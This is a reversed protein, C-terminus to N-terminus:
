KNFVPALTAKPAAVAVEDEGSRWLLLAPLLLFDLVLAFVIALSTLLGMDANVKFDSFMLVAFGVALIVTNTVIATGVSKFAYRISDEASLKRESRARVYKSLFHVTDDVVIGLSISAVTAVSFGVEGVLIAWAGFTAMIPLGNPVLSLLGLSVSRLAFALIVSIALVAAITGGVMNIVNREAIYTFMVGASTPRAHMYAPANDALWAQADSLFQKTEISDADTLTATVRTASKDVNIRDNLDLGYPLSIEYLLLYQASLDRNDPIRYYGQDDDHLNKSLRKMIDSFAYVHTVQPQDRLWSAFQDLKELYLPESVGGPGNAGVSFEIPYMGFYAMASDTDNRFEIDTSFYEVWEDNLQLTPIFAVLSLAIVSVVVLLRKRRAIVFDAFREMAPKYFKSTRKVRFGVPMMALLAPLLTLSLVWAGAIGIATINGLHWFPPSDSFNLSAFGVITTLSTISVPMFNLRVAEVIAAAKDMGERMLTRLSMLIHISDAIALTLIVIPASASIPTLNIGLWGASGMGVVVSLLIIVATALTAWASRIILFTLLLIIAFMLPVLSGMDATGVEAFANNLMSVGSLYVSLNPYDAEIQAAITRAKAVAEPVETLSEEPYQLVVNVATVEGSESVLLRNLLPEDLAIQLKEALEAGSMSAADSVLDEVILDDDIGETHQFNSVSDVRLTYPIQWAEETLAEVATLTENTFAGSSDRPELVFLFNDNKTYTAQLQEFAQLEPNEQSFFVRYNNAFELKSAGSGIGFVALLAALLVLWRFRMVTHALSVAFRDITEYYRGM